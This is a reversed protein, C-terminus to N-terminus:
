QPEGAAPAPNRGQIGPAAVGRVAMGVATGVVDALPTPPAAQRVWHVVAAREAAVVVAALV